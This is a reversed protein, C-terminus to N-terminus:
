AVVCFQNVSLLTAGTRNQNTYNGQQLARRDKVMRSAVCSARNHRVDEDCVVYNTGTQLCFPRM